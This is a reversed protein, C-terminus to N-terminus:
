DKCREDDANFNCWSAKIDTAQCCEVINFNSSFNLSFGLGSTGISPGTSIRIGDSVLVPTRITMEQWGLGTPNSSTTTETASSKVPDEGHVIGTVLLCNILLIITLQKNSNM